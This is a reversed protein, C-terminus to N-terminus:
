KYYMLKATIYQGTALKLRPTGGSTWELGIVKITSGASYVKGTKKSFSVTTFVPIKQAAVVTTPMSYYYAEITSNVKQVFLKNATIYQNEGIKLRPVGSKTYEVAQIKVFEGVKYTKGTKVDCEVTTFVSTAKTFLVRNPKIYYYNNISALVNQVATKKASLYLGTSTKVRPTGASTYEIGKITFVKNPAVLDVFNKDTFNVGKYASVEKLTVVKKPVETLYNKIDSRVKISSTKYATIYQNEGLKLRPQGESTWAIDQVKLVDGIVKRKGSKNTLDVDTYINVNAELMVYGPNTYHYNLVSSIVPFTFKKSATIYNGDSLKLRPIGSSTYAIDSVTLVKGVEYDREYNANSLTTKSYGGTTVQVMVKKPVTTIYSSLNSVTKVSDVKKASMYYGNKLKLVTVGIDSKALSAVDLITNKSVTKVSNASTFTSSSYLTVSKKTAIKEPNEKYYAAPDSVQGVDKTFYSLPVNPALRSLDVGGSIGSVIGRDTYQWLDYAYSPKTAGYRPIWVFDFKSTDLNFDSYLHHAIYLGVKKNTLSRLEEVYSNIIGRMASKSSGSVTEVDVVYFKANKNARNYFDRAEVKADAKDTARSFAYVGFPVGYKIASSENFAHQRDQTTSGDQTRIIVLDLVKSAKEWNIVGQHHSIDAIIPASTSAVRMVSSPTKTQTTDTAYPTEEWETTRDPSGSTPLDEVTATVEQAHANTVYVFSVCLMVMLTTICWKHLKKMKM